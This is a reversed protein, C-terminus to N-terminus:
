ILLWALAERKDGFIRMKSDIDVGKLRVYFRYAAFVVKMSGEVGLCAIKLVRQDHEAYLDKWQRTLTSDHYGNEFDALVRVSGPAQSSVERQFAAQLAYGEDRNCDSCDFWLYRQAGSSEWRVRGGLDVAGPFDM